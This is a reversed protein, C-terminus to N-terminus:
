ISAADVISKAIRKNYDDIKMHLSLAIYTLTGVKLNSDKPIKCGLKEDLEKKIHEAYKISGFLSYPLGVLTEVTRWVFCYDLLYKNEHFRPTVWISVLGLPNMDDPTFQNLVILIARRTSTKDKKSLNCYNVLHKLFSEFQGNETLKCGILGDKNILVSNAYEKLENESSVWYDPISEKSPTDLVLKFGIVEKLRKEANDYTNIEDDTNSRLQELIAPYAVTATSCKMGHVLPLLSEPFDLPRPLFATSKKHSDDKVSYSKFDITSDYLAIIVEDSSQCFKVVGKQRLLEMCEESKPRYSASQEAVDDTTLTSECALLNTINPAGEKEGYVIIRNIHNSSVIDILQAMAAQWFDPLGGGAIPRGDVIISDVFLNDPLVVDGSISLSQFSGLSILVCSSFPYEISETKISSGIKYVKTDATDNFEDGWFTFGSDTYIIKLNNKDDTKLSISKNNRSRLLGHAIAFSFSEKSVKLNRNEIGILELENPNGTLEIGLWQIYDNIYETLKAYNIEPLKCFNFAASSIFNLLSNSFPKDSNQRSRIISIALKIFISKDLRSNYTNSIPKEYFSVTGRNKENVGQANKRKTAQDAQNIIKKIIAIENWDTLSRIGFTVGVSLKNENGYKPKKILTKLKDLTNLLSAEGKNEIFIIYEDGGDITCILRETMAVYEICGLVNQIAKDGESQGIQKNILGFEDLDAFVCYIGLPSNQSMKELAEPLLHALQDKKFDLEGHKRYDPLWISTLFEIFKISWINSAM